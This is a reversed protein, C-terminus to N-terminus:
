MLLVIGMPGDFLCLYMLQVTGSSPSSDAILRKFIPCSLRCGIPLQAACVHAPSM